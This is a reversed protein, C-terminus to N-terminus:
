CYGANHFECCVEFTSHDVLFFSSDAGITLIPGRQGIECAIREGPEFRRKRGSIPATAEFGQVVDFGQSMSM